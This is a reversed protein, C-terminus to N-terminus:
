RYVNEVKGVINEFAYKEPDKCSPVTHYLNLFTIIPTLKSKNQYQYSRHESFKGNLVDSRFLACTSFYEKQRNVFLMRFGLVIHWFLHISYAWAKLLSFLWFKM